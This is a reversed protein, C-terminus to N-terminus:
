VFIQIFKNPIGQIPKGELESFGITSNLDIQYINQTVQLNSIGFVQISHSGSLSEVMITWNGRLSDNNVNLQSIYTTQTNLSISYQPIESAFTGVVFLLM